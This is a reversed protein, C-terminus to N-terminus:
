PRRRHEATPQLLVDKQRGFGQLAIRDSADLTVIAYANNRPTPGEVMARLTCYHIGGINRYGGTHKHGQLVAVVNGARELVVRVQPANKVGHPDDECDLNQHIFVITKRDRAKNLDDALWRRQVEPIWTDTWAFNGPTYPSGDKKFDGDLVVFHYRGHDFSYYSKRV